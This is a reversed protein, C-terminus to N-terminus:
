QSLLWGQCRRAGLRIFERSFRPSNLRSAAVCFLRSFLEALEFSSGTLKLRISTGRQKARSKKNITKPKPVKTKSKNPTKPSDRGVEKGWSRLVLPGLGIM